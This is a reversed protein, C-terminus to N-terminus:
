YGRRVYLFIYGAFTDSGASCTYTVQSTNTGNARYGHMSHIGTDENADTGVVSRGLLIGVTAATSVYTENTGVTFAPATSHVYGVANISTLAAFGDADGATGTSLLGVSITETADLTITLVGIDYVFDGPLLDLGSDTEVNNNFTAAVAYCREKDFKSLLLNHTGPGIGKLEAFRGDAPCFVLVDYTTATGFFRVEDDIAFQTTTIPNALSTQNIDKYLTALTRASAATFVFTLVGSTIQKQLLGDEEFVGINWEPMHIM